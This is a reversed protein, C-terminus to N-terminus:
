QINIDVSKISSNLKKIIENSLDIEKKAIVFNDEDFIIQINKDIAIEQLIKNIEDGLQTKALQVFNLIKSNILDIEKQYKEINSQYKNFKKNFEKESLILQSDDLESKERLLDKEIGQVIKLQQKKFKEINKLFDQYAFSSNFIKEYNITAFNEASLDFIIFFFLFSFIIVKM